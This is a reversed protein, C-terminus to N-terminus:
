CFRYYIDWLRDRLNRKVPPFLEEAKATKLFQRYVELEEISQIDSIGKPLRTGKKQAAREARRRFSTTTNM